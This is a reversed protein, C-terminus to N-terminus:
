KSCLANEEKDSIDQQVIENKLDGMHQNFHAKDSNLYVHNYVLKLLVIDHFCLHVTNEWEAAFM